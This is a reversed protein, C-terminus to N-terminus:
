VFAFAGRCRRGGLGVIEGEMFRMDSEWFAPRETDIREGTKVDRGAWRGQVIAIGVRGRFDTIV